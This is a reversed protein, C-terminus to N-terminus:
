ASASSFLSPWRGAPRLFHRLNRWAEATDATEGHRERFLSVYAAIEALDYWMRYLALADSDIGVGTAAAYAAPVSADTEALAWLDREPPALLVSEWDVMVFGGPTELVNASHPEGHTIVLRATRRAVQAALRDYAALLRTLDAAHAALLDRALPGYPGARWPAGTQGMAATLEAVRPVVFDDAVPSEARAGHLMILQDLVALRDASTTFEGDRGAHCHAVYPHVVLSYRAALRAVIRGDAAPIPAVVFDLGADRRLSLATAFARELRGFAADATDAASRAKAALDDVTVFLRGSDATRVLWHHSGFGVAQYALSTAALNWGDRLADRLMDDAVDGPQSLV